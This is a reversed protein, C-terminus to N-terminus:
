EFDFLKEVYSALLQNQAHIFDKFANDESKIEHSANGNSLDVEDICSSEQFLMYANQSSYTPFFCNSYPLSNDPESGQTIVSQPHSKTNCQFGKSNVKYM